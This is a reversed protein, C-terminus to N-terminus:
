KNSQDLKDLKNLKCLKILSITLYFFIIFNFLSLINITTPNYFNVLRDIRPYFWLHYLNLLWIICILLYSIILRKNLFCIATLLTVAPFLYREHMNTMLLFSSFTIIISSSVFSFASFKSKVMVILVGLYSLCFLLMGWQKLNLFLVKILDTRTFDIGYFLAWLNFANATLMNGQHSIVRDLYLHYLWAVPNGKVFPHSFLVFFGITALFVMLTKIHNVKLTFIYMLFLPLMILLSVKFYFSSLFVILGWLPKKIMFLYISLICLFNILSDTQGWIASVYWFVPNFLAVLTVLKGVKNNFLKTAIKGAFFAIGLDALIFPLKVLAPYLHIEAWPILNSPFLGINLNLWWFVSTVGRYIVGMLGFLYITGPPQNAWSVAWFQNQYFNKPGLDWIKLGWDLHNGLDPHYPGVSLALRLLFACLFWYRMKM